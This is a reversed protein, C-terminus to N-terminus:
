YASLLRDPSRFVDACLLRASCLTLGPDADLLEEEGKNFYWDHVFGLHRYIERDVPVLFCWPEKKIMLGTFVTQMINDMLGMRRYDKRTAVCLIYTVNVARDGSKSVCDKAYEGSSDDTSSSAPGKIGALAAYEHGKDKRKSDQKNNGSTKRDLYVAKVSRVHAMSLIKGSGDEIVCIRHNKIVGTCENKGDLEGYLDHIYDRDDGFCEIFLGLTRIYEFKTLFRTILM